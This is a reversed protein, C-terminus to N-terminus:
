AFCYKGYSPIAENKLFYPLEFISNANRVSSLARAEDKWKEHHLEGLILATILGIFLTYHLLTKHKFHIQL